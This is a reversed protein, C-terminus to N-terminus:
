MINTDNLLLVFPTMYPSHVTLGEHTGSNVGPNWQAEQQEIKLKRHLSKYITTQDRQGIHPAM